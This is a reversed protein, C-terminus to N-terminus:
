CKTTAPSHNREDENVFLLGKHSTLASDFQCIGPLQPCPELQLGGTDKCGTKSQMDGSPTGNKDKKIMEFPLKWWECFCFQLWNDMKNSIPPSKIFGRSPPTSEGTYFHKRHPPPVIM